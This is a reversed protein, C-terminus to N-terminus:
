TSYFSLFLKKLSIFFSKKDILSKPKSPSHQFSIFIFISLSKKQALVRFYYSDFFFLPLLLIPWIKMKGRYSTEWPLVVPCHSKRRQIYIYINHIDIFEKKQADGAGLAPALLIIDIFPGIADVCQGLWEVHERRLEIYM